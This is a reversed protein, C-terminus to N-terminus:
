EESIILRDAFADADQPQLNAWKHSNEETDMKVIQYRLADLALEYPSCREMARLVYSRVQQQRKDEEPTLDSMAACYRADV